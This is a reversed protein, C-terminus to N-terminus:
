RAGRQAAIADRVARDQIAADRESAPLGSLLQSYLEPAEGEVLGLVGINLSPRGAGLAASLTATVKEKTAPTGAKYRRVMDQVSETDKLSLGTPGSLQGPNNSDPGSGLDLPYLLAHADDKAGQITSQVIGPSGTEPLTRDGLTPLPVGDKAVEPSYEKGTYNAARLNSNFHSIVARKAAELGPRADTTLVAFSTPDQGGLAKEMAELVGPRFGTVNYAQHLAFKLSEEDAKMTQWEPSKFFKTSGGYKEIGQSVQDILKSAVDVGAKQNRLEKAAEPTPARFPQGDSNTLPATQTGIINGDADRVARADGIEVERQGQSTEQGKRSNALWEGYQQQTWKGSPPVPASPGMLIALEQPTFQQTEAKQKAAAVAHNAWGLAEENRQHLMTSRALADERTEKQVKISNDLGKQEIDMRAQAMQGQVAARTKAIAIARTGGPAFNQQMTALQDDATKLSALRAAEQAEYLDKSLALQTAASSRQQGLLTMQKETNLKQVQLNREFITNLADMGANHASGTRAQVLGGVVAGLVGAIQQPSTMGSAPDYKSNALEQARADIRAAAAKSENIANVLIQNNEQERRTNETVARQKAAAVADQRAMELHTEVDAFQVPNRVRLETLYRQVDAEQQPTQPKGGIMDALLKDPRMDYTRAVDQYAAENRALGAAETALKPPALGAFPPAGPVAPQAPAGAPPPSAGLPVSLGYPLQVPPPAALQDPAAAPPAPAVPATSPQATPITIGYPLQLDGLPPPKPLSAAYDLPSLAPAAGGAAAPPPASLPIDIGYPLQVSPPAPSVAADVPPPPAATQGTIQAALAPDTQSLDDSM